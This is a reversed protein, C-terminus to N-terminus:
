RKYEATNGRSTTKFFSTFRSFDLKANMLYSVKELLIYQSNAYKVFFTPWHEVMFHWALDKGIYNKAVADFMQLDLCLNNLPLSHAHSFWYDRAGRM